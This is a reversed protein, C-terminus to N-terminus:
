PKTRPETLKRFYDIAAPDGWNAPGTARAIQYGDPDILITTPYGYVHFARSFAMGPDAYPVLLDAGHTKLFAAAITNAGKEEDVALVSLRSDPLAGALRALAPLEAVCPACWSAWINLLVYHGKLMALSHHFGSVDTLDVDPTGALKQSATLRALAPPPKPLHPLSLWFFVGVGIGALAVILALLRSVSM